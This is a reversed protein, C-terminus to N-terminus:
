EKVWNNKNAPDGGKFRYGEEVTGAKIGTTPAAQKMGPGAAVELSKVATERNLRKQEIVDKSDGPQPFYQKKANNFESENIAAGSEQRLIANVFSRQAQEVRQEPASQTFNLMTGLGEGVLPVSEGVRKLVGPQIKGDKGVIDLIDSAQKARLAFGTSKGQAETLNEATSKPGFRVAAPANAGGPVVSTPSAASPMAASPAVASPMAATAPRAVPSTPAGAPPMALANVNAPATTPALANTPTNITTPAGVTVTPMSVEVMSNSRPDYGFYAPVKEGNVVKEGALPQMVPNDINYQFQERSRRDTIDQGRMTAGAGIGAAQIRAQNSAMTNADVFLKDATLGFGRKWQELAAPDNPIASLAKDLPAMSEVFPRTLPNSYVATMLSAASASDTVGGIQDKYLKIAKETSGLDRAAIESQQGILKMGTIPSAAMLKRRGEATTTDGGQSYFNRLANESEYGQQAQRIAMVQGLQGLMNTQEIPKVGLAINPDIPM